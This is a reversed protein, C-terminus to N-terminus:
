PRVTSTKETLTYVTTRAHTPPQHHVRYACDLVTYRSTTNRATHRIFYIDVPVEFKKNNTQNVLEVDGVIRIVSKGQARLKEIDVSIGEDDMIDNSNYLTVMEEVTERDVMFNVLMEDDTLPKEYIRISRMDVDAADSSVTINVPNQQLLSETGSYQKVGCRVGNVYLEMLRTDTKKQIVFSIHFSMDPVFPTNVSSGNSATMRVEEATM